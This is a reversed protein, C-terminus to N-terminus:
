LRQSPHKGNEARYARDWDRIRQLQRVSVVQDDTPLHWLRDNLWLLGESLPVEPLYQDRCFHMFKLVRFADWWEFFRREFGLLDKSNAIAKRMGEEFGNERHFEDVMPHLRGWPEKYWRERNAFVNGLVELSKPDYVGYAEETRMKAIAHGTGFPVRDSVRSSPMVTVDNIEGFGGLPIAKHLFYFDEGAKRPSMGGVQQYRSSRVTICSGLTQFAYPFGVYRLADIYYRLFLEYQIIERHDLPHEYFVVGAKRTKDLYYDEIATLYNPTCTCDADYCVILGDKGLNEFWRVAEDMGAKRALGVGAKKPPLELHCVELSISPPSAMERLIGIARSNTEKVEDTANAPQNVVVLIVVHGSPPDCDLLSQVADATFSENYSPVVVVMETASRPTFGDSISLPYAYRNLYLNRRKKM